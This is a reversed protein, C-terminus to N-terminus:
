LKEKEIESSHSMREFQPFNNRDCLENRVYVGGRNTVFTNDQSSNIRESILYYTNKKLESEDVGM